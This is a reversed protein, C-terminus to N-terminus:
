PIRHRRTALTLPPSRTRRLLRRRRTPLTELVRSLRGGWRWAAPRLCSTRPWIACIPARRATCPSTAAPSNLRLSRMMTALSTLRRMSATERPVSRARSQRWSPAACSRTSKWKFACRQPRRTSAPRNSRRRAIILTPSPSM